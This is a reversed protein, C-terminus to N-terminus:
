RRSRKTCCRATSYLAILFYNLGNFSLHPDGESSGDANQFFRERGGGGCGGNQGYPSSCGGYGMLSQLMQMLQSLMGMLPGFLGQLSSNDSSAEGYPAASGDNLWPPVFRSINDGATPAGTFPLGGETANGGLSSLPNAGLSGELPQVYM